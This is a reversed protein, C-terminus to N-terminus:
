PIGERMESRHFATQKKVFHIIQNIKPMRTTYQVYVSQLIMNVKVTQITRNM